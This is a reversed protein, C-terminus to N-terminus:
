IDRVASATSYKFGLRFRTYKCDIYRQWHPPAHETPPDNRPTDTSLLHFSWVRPRHAHSGRGCWGTGAAARKQEIESLWSLRYRVSSRRQRWKVFTGIFRLCCCHPEKGACEVRHKKVQQALKPFNGLRKGKKQASTTHLREGLSVALHRSCILHLGPLLSSKGAGVRDQQLAVATM